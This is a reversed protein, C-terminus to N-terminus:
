VDEESTDSYIDRKPCNRKDHNVMEKCCACLRKPKQSKAIAEKRTSLLRKGSGKNNSIKPPLITVESSNTFGLLQEIEKEKSLVESSAPSVEERFAKWNAALEKIRDVSLTKAIAMTSYFESWVNSIKMNIVDTPECDEILNGPLISYPNRYSVKCWRPVIYKEPISKLLNASLFWFVHRCLLGKIEFLKCTCKVDETTATYSVQFTTHRLEDNVDYVRIDGNLPMGALGCVSTHKLEDQVDYFVKHTYVSAAHLEIKTPSPTTVPLSHESDKNSLWKHGGLDFDKMVALWRQEFEMPELSSDWVVSNLRSLFDTEKCTIAGVKASVKEMIHWMCFHHSATKFVKPLALLMGPDQDTVLCLPEKKDMCDLFKKFCWAFSHEDEHDLLACAFTVSRKHHYVGTFPTFKMRYKNTGYTADYSLADGFISYNRRCEADAWFVRSLCKDDDVEYAFYFGPKMKKLEELHNIFLTADQLSIYCKVDNAFNKFDTLTAGVNAYGDAYVKCLQFSRDAGINLKSNDIILKKQFGSLHRVVKHFEKDIVSLLRHNHVAVFQDVRYGGGEVAEVRMM